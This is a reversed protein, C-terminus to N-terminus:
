AFDRKNNRQWRWLCYALILAIIFPFLFIHDNSDPDQVSFFVVKFPILTIDRLVVSFYALLVITFQILSLVILLLIQSRYETKRFTLWLIPSCLLPLFCLFQVFFMSSIGFLMLGGFAIIPLLALISPFLIWKPQLVRVLTLILLVFFFFFRFGSHESIYGRLLSLYDM